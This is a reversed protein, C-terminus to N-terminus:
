FGVESSGGAIKPVYNIDAGEVINQYLERTSRGQFPPVGNLTYYIMIGLSWLDVKEDYEGMIMEPALYIATGMAQYNSHATIRGSLGFDILKLSTINNQCTFM